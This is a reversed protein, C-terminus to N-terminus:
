GRGNVDGAVQQSYWLRSFTLTLIPDGSFLLSNWSLLSAGVVRFSDGLGITKCKPWGDTDFIGNASTTPYIQTVVSGHSNDAHEHSPPIRDDDFTIAGQPPAIGRDLIERRDITFPM